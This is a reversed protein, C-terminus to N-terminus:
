FGNPKAPTQQPTTTDAPSPQAGSTLSTHNHVIVWQNNRKEVVVTTQGQSATPKGDVDASFDWQYCAWGISGNMKIYTNFRDMRIRQMRAHQQQYIALYNTWGIVPPAWSGNVMSVDDAYTAHLKEVDGIQWAGLMESILYDIQQSDNLLPKSNDPAQANDKKKKKDKQAAALSVNALLVAFALLLMWVKTSTRCHRDTGFDKKM